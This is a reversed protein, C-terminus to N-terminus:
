HSEGLAIKIINLTTNSNSSSNKNTKRNSSNNNNSCHQENRNARKITVLAKACLIVSALAIHSNQIL